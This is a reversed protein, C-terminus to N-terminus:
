CRASEFELQRLEQTVDKVDPDKLVSDTLQFRFSNTHSSHKAGKRVLGVPILAAALVRYELDFVAAALTDFGDLDRIASLQRSTQGGTLRRGKIQYRHGGVGIADVAKFSQGNQEWNFARCFLYEALDGTPM